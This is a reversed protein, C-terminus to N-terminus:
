PTASAPVENAQHTRYTFIDEDLITMMLGYIRIDLKMSFFHRIYRLLENSLHEM